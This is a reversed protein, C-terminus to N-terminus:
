LRKQEQHNLTLSFGWGFPLFRKSWGFFVQYTQNRKTSVEATWNKLAGGKPRHCNWGRLGRVGSTIRNEAFGIHRNPITWKGHRTEGHDVSTHHLNSSRKPLKLQHNLHTLELNSCTEFTEFNSEICKCIHWFQTMFLHEVVTLITIMANSTKMTKLANSVINIYIYVYYKYIFSKQKENRPNIFDAWFISMRFWDHNSWIPNLSIRKAWSMEITHGM